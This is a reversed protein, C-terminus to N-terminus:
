SYTKCKQAFLPPTHSKALIDTLGPSSDTLVDQAHGAQGPQARQTGLQSIWTGGTISTELQLPQTKSHRWKLCRKDQLFEQQWAGKLKQAAVDKVSPWLPFIFCFLKLFLKFYVSLIFYHM